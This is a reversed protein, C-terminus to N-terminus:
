EVYMSTTERRRLRWLAVVWWLRCVVVARVGDYGVGFLGVVCFKLSHFGRGVQGNARRLCWRIAVVENM